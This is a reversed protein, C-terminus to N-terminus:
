SIGALGARTENPVRGARKVPGRGNAITLRRWHIGLTVELEAHERERAPQEVRACHGLGHEVDASMM